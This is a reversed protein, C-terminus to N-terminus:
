KKGSKERAALRYYLMRISIGLQAAARTKNGGTAALASNIDEETPRSRKQHETKSAPPVKERLPTSLVMGALYGSLHEPLLVPSDHMVSIWEMANKLERVNGSWAHELLVEAAEPSIEKFSKGRKESFARLFFLALPIIGDRRERLPPVMISGVRLRYYLDSRFLGQEIRETLDLNTAAIIRIDIKIKSLGGVRYFSKDEIVRLLKAQLGVPIEGIEDLFLTGGMALDIKGRAGRTAGGTFAGAEYGFLESEFLNAPLAACNIDVFPRTALSNDEGYHILKAVIDKGVGTEGQILVPLDRDQHYCRAQNVIEWMSESFIGVNDLGAQRALQERLQSLEARVGNTAEAVVEEFHDTLRENEHLLAQHEAVRAMVSKLEELNIPKTLYDYAGARLAGIALELDAHGTYLVVDAPCLGPLGKIDRVLEIGSKGPMQIDSLVMEFDHSRFLNLASVADACLTVAHGLLTMYEALSERTDADDDVLLIRM